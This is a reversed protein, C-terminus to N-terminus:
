NRRELLLGQRTDILALLVDADAIDNQAIRLVKRNSLYIKWDARTVVIRQISQWGFCKRGLALGEQHHLRLKGFRVWDGAMSAARLRGYVPLFTDRGIRDILAESSQYYEDLLVSTMGHRKLMLRKAGSPSTIWQRAVVENWLWAESRGYRQVILGHKCVIVRSFHLKAARGLWVLGGLSALGASLWFGGHTLGEILLWSLFSLGAGLLVAGVAWHWRVMHAQRPFVALLAGVQPFQEELSARKPRQGGAWPIWDSNPIQMAFVELLRQLM